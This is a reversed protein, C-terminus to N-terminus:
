YRMDLISVVQSYCVTVLFPRINRLDFLKRRYPICQKGRGFSLVTSILMLMPTVSSVLVSKTCALVDACEGLFLGVEKIFFNYQYSKIMWFVIQTSQLVFDSM